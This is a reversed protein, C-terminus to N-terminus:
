FTSKTGAIYDKCNFLPDIAEEKDNKLIAQFTKGFAKMSM